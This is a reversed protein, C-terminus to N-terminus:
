VSIPAITVDDDVVPTIENATTVEDGAPVFLGDDTLVLQEGVPEPDYSTRKFSKRPPPVPFDSLESFTQPVKADHAAFLYSLVHVDSTTGPARFKLAGYTGRLRRLETEDGRKVTGIVVLDSLPNGGANVSHGEKLVLYEAPTITKIVNSGLSNLKVKARAIEM